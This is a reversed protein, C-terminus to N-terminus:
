GDRWAHRHRRRARAYGDDALYIAPRHGRLLPRVAAAVCHPSPTGRRSRLEGSAALCRRLLVFLLLLLFPFRPPGATMASRVVPDIDRRSLHARLATGRWDACDEYSALARSRQVEELPPPPTRTRRSSTWRPTLWALSAIFIIKPRPESLLRQFMNTRWENCQTYPAPRPLCERDLYQRAPLRGQAEELEDVRGHRLVQVQVQHQVVVGGV